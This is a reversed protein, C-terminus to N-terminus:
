PAHFRNPDVLQLVTLTMSIQHQLQETVFQPRNSARPSIEAPATSPRFRFAFSVM